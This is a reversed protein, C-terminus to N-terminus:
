EALRLYYKKEMRCPHYSLKSRRLGPDGMDEARNIFAFQPYKGACFCNIAQYVGPIDTDGKEIHICYTDKNLQQGISLAIVKDNNLLAWGECDLYQLDNLADLCGNYEMKTEPNDPEQRSLWLQMLGYCQPLISKDIPLLQCDPCARTFHHIQNRKADYKGGKLLALDQQNYIYNAGPEYEKALFRGPWQQEFLDLDSQSVESILFDKGQERYDAIMHETAAFVAKNSASIPVCITDLGLYGSKVVLADDVIDWSYPDWNRWLYFSSFCYTILQRERGALYTDFIEKDSLQVPKFAM